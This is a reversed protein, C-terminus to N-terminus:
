KLMRCYDEGISCCQQQFLHCNPVNSEFLALKKICTYIYFIYLSPSNQGHLFMFLFKLLPLPPTSPLSGLCNQAIPIRVVVPISPHLSFHNMGAGYLVSMSLALSLQAALPVSPASCHMARNLQFCAAFCGAM